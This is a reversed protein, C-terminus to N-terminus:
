KIIGVFWGISFAPKWLFSSIQQSPLDFIHLFFLCILYYVIVKLSGIM